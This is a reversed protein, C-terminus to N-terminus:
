GFNQILYDVIKIEPTVQALQDNLNGFNVPLTFLSGREDYLEALQGITLEPNVAHYLNVTGELCLVRIRQIEQTDTIRFWRGGFALDPITFGIPSGNSLFRQALKLEQTKPDIEAILIGTQPLVPFDRNEVWGGESLGFWILCVPNYEALTERARPYWGLGGVVKTVQIGKKALIEATQKVSGGSALGTDELLFGNRGNQDYVQEIIDIQQSLPPCGPREARKSPKDDRVIESEDSLPIVRNIQLRLANETLCFRETSCVTLDPNEEKAAQILLARKRALKVEDVIWVPVRSFVDSQTYFAAIAENFQQWVVNLQLLDEAAEALQPFAVNFPLTTILYIPDGQRVETKKAAENIPRGAESLLPNLTRNNIERPRYQEPTFPM